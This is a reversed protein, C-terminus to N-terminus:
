RRVNPRLGRRVDPQVRITDRQLRLGAQQAHSVQQSRVQMATGQPIAHAVAPAETFLSGGAAASALSVALVALKLKMTSM